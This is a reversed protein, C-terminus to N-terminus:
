TTLTTMIILVTVSNISNNLLTFFKASTIQFKKALQLREAGFVGFITISYNTPVADEM